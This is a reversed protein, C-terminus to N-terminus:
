LFRFAIQDTKLSSHSSYEFFRLRPQHSSFNGVTFISMCSYPITAHMDWDRNCAYSTFIYIYDIPFPIWYLCHLLNESLSSRPPGGRSSQSLARAILLFLSLTTTTTHHPPIPRTILILGFFSPFEFLLSFFSWFETGAM